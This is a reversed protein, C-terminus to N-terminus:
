PATDEPLDARVRYIHNYERELAGDEVDIDMTVAMTYYIYPTGSAATDVVYETVNKALLTDTDNETNYSHLESDSEYVLYVTGDM